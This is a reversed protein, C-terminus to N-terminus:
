LCKIIINLLEKKFQKTSDAMDNDNVNSLIILLNEMDEEQLKIKLNDMKKYEIM